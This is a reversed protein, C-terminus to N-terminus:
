EEAKEQESEAAEARAAAEGFEERKETKQVSIRVLVVEPDNVITIGEAVPIDKVRLVQDPETLVSIDVEIESPMNAPLCQVNLSNLEQVLINEKARAVIAEGTLVVPVEVKIEDAMKVQYLDVHLIDNKLPMIQANRLMISRAKKEGDVKLSIIRTQGARRMVSQLETADCQLSVSEIGPGFLNVPTIGNRRLNKVKKGTIDRKVAKLEISNM